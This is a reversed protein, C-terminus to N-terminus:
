VTKSSGPLVGPQKRLYVGLKLVGGGLGEKSREGPSPVCSGAHGLEQWEELVDQCSQSGLGGPGGNWWLGLARSDGERPETKEVLM